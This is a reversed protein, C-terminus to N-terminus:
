TVNLFIDLLKKLSKWVIKLLIERLRWFKWVYWYLWLHTVHLGNVHVTKEFPVTWRARNKTGNWTTRPHTLSPIAYKQDTWGHLLRVMRIFTGSKIRLNKFRMFPVSHHWIHLVTKFFCAQSIPRSARECTCNKWVIGNMWYPKQYQKLPKHISLLHSPMNKIWEVM